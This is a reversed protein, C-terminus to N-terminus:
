RDLIRKLADLPIKSWEPRHALEYGLEYIAKDLEFAKLIADLAATSGPLIGGKEHAVAVYGELFAQRNRQEWAEALDRPDGDQDQLASWAAYQLSRVMGAVDKVPTTFMRREQMPRAPEGEFDLVFWGADTRMVQGLHFDGHVRIAPGVDEIQRLEDFVGRAANADLDPHNVRNLQLEMLDAWEGPDGPRSGFAKTMADHLEATTQGLREAEAAFDGGAMGPEGGQRFFDRISTLAMAWGETGGALFTQVIGLESGAISWEGVMEPTNRFGVRHLAKTVEIDINTDEFLKRFVKLITREDYVLSTNSQEAGIHRVNNNEAMEPAIERILRLAVEPDKLADYAFVAEGDVTFEGLVAEASGELFNATQGMPRLAVLVHYRDVESDTFTVGVELRVVSPWERWLVDSSEIVIEKLVRDKAGFWRQRPLFISLAEVLRSEPIM